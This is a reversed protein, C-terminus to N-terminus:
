IIQRTETPNTFGTETYYYKKTKAISTSLESLEASNVETSKIIEDVDINDLKKINVSVVYEQHEYLIQHLDKNMYLQQQIQKSIEETPPILIDITNQSPILPHDNLTNYEADEYATILQKEGIIVEETLEQEEFMTQYYQKIGTKIFTSEQLTTNNNPTLTYLYDLRNLTPNEYIWDAHTKTTKNEERENEPPKFSSYIIIEGTTNSINRNCRGATQIISSAPSVDRYIVDFSIDVGAELIQTATVYLQIDTEMLIKTMELLIKRDLPRLNGTLNVIIKKNSINSQIYQQLSNNRYKTYITPYNNLLHKNLSLGNIQQKITNYTTISSNITNSIIATSNYKNHNNIAELSINELTTPEKKTINTNFYYEASPHINFNVRNNDELFEYYKDPNILQTPNLTDIFPRDYFKPHTATISVIHCNYKTILEKLLKSIIGWWKVPLQQIEDVIIISNQINGIKTSQSNKPSTISEFLQVFTTLTLESLWSTSYLKGKTYDNANFDTTTEALYHHITYEPDTPKVGFIDRIEEDTQDIISTLPLTYIINSKEKQQHIYLATSLATITKGFGTPLEITYLGGTQLNQKSISQLSERRAQERLANLQTTSDSYHKNPRPPNLDTSVYESITNLTLHKTHYEDRTISFSSKDALTLSGYLKMTKTSDIEKHELTSCIEKIFKPTYYEEIDSLTLENPLVTNFTQLSHPNSKISNMQKYLRKGKDEPNNKINILAESIDPLSSHHKWIAIFGASIEEFGYDLQESEMVSAFFTVAGFFGHNKDQENKYSDVMRFLKDNRIYHQFYNTTKGIDHLSGILYALEKDENVTLYKLNNGVIDSHETLKIGESDEEPPHSYTINYDIYETM